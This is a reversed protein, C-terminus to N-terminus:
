RFRNRQKTYLLDPKQNNLLQEISFGQIIPYSNGFNKYTGRKLNNNVTTMYQEFCVFIGCKSESDEVNQYLAKVSDPTVKGGKVQVIAMEYSFKQNIESYPFEIVGDIGGDPGKQGPHKRKYMGKAGILGCAWKEFEFPDQQALKKAEEIDRPAGYIEIKNELFKNQHEKLIRNKMLGTSFKAIDIGIWQRNLSEAADITTGCGGFPDLVIDGENSNAKIIRELLALPKQTPYGLKEKEDKPDLAQIDIWVDDIVYGQCRFILDNHKPKRGNEKEWKKIYGSFRSDNSPHNGYKIENGNVYYKKWREYDVTIEYNDDYELVFTDKRRNGNGYWLIVDHKKPYKDKVKGQYTRYHWVIENVFNKRDFILDMILKLYHSATPDCHLYISGTDKLVRKMAHLRLAM